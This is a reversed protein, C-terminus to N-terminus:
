DHQAAHAGHLVNLFVDDTGFCRPNACEGFVLLREDPQYALCVLLEAGNAAGLTTVARWSGVADENRAVEGDVVFACHVIIGFHRTKKVADWPPQRFGLSGRGAGLATFALLCARLGYRDTLPHRDDVGQQALTLWVMCAWVRSPVRTRPM